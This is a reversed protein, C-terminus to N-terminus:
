EKVKVKKGISFYGALIVILPLVMVVTGVVKNGVVSDTIARKVMLQAFAPLSLLSLEVRQAVIVYFYMFVAYGSIILSVVSVAITNKISVEKFSKRGSLFYVVFFAIFYLAYGIVQWASKPADVTYKPDSILIPMLVFPIICMIIHIGMIKLAGLFSKM